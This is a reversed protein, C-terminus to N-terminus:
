DKSYEVRLTIIKKFTYNIANSLLNIAVQQFRAKDGIVYTPVEAARLDLTLTNYKIDCKLKMM